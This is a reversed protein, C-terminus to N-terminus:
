QGGEAAAAVDNDPNKPCIPIHNVVDTHDGTHKKCLKCRWIDSNPYAREMPLAQKHATEIPSEFVEWDFSKALQQFPEEVLWKFRQLLEIYDEKSKRDSPRPERGVRVVGLLQLEKMVRRVNSPSMGLLKVLESTFFKAKHEIQGGDDAHRVETIMHRLISIRNRNTSSLTIKIVIPLDEMTIYNRGHVEFAHARAINYLVTNARSAHEIIPQEFTYEYDYDFVSIEEQEETQQQQQEETTLKARRTKSEYAYANGRIHALLLALETIMKLAEQVDKSQDWEIVRRTAVENKKSESQDASSSSNADVVNSVPVLNVMLPCAELWKLYSFLADKINRAKVNFPTATLNRLLEEPTPERFKTRYFYLKPGLSSLVKYVKNPIEVTAGILTFMLPEDIGRLGHLGSHTLLGEGDALRVLTSLIEILTEENQMFIPALEPILFLRDKMERILDIDELEEKNEVNAHSVFSKPNIKDVYYTAFWRRLMGIAITKWTSPNDNRMWIPFPFPLYEIKLQTYDPEVGAKRAAEELESIAQYVELRDKAMARKVFGVASSFQQNSMDRWEPFVAKAIQQAIYAGNLDYQDV